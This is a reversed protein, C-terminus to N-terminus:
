SQAAKATYLFERLLKVTLRQRRIPGGPPGPSCSTWGPVRRSRPHRRSASSTGRAPVSVLLTGASYLVSPSAPCWCAKDRSVLWLPGAEGGRGKVATVFSQKRSSSFLIIVNGLSSFSNASIFSPKFHLQRRHRLMKHCFRQSRGGKLFDFECAPFFRNFLIDPASGGTRKKYKQCLSLRTM